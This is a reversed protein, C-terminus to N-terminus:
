ICSVGLSLLTQGLSTLPPDIIFRFNFSDGDSNWPRPFFFRSLYGTCSPISVSWTGGRRHSGREPLSSFHFSWRPSFFKELHQFIFYIRPPSSPIPYFVPGRASEFSPVGSAHCSFLCITRRVSRRSNLGYPERGFPAM